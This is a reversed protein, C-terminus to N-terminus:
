KFLVLLHGIPPLQSAVPFCMRSCAAVSHVTLSPAWPPSYLPSVAGCHAPSVCVFHSPSLLARLRIQHANWMGKHAHLTIIHWQSLSPTASQRRETQSMRITYRVFCLSSQTERSSVVLHCCVWRTADACMMVLLPDFSARGRSGIRPFHIELATLRPLPLM